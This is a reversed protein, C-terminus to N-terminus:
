NWVRNTFNARAMELLDTDQEYEALAVLLESPDGNAIADPWRTHPCRTNWMLELDSRIELRLAPSLLEPPAGFGVVRRLLQRRLVENEDLKGVVFTMVAAVALLMLAPTLLWLWVEPLFVAPLLLVLGAFWMPARLYGLVVSRTQLPIKIRRQSGDSLQIVYASSEPWVPLLVRYFSTVIAESELRDVVGYDDTPLWSEATREM